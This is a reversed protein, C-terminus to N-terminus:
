SFRYERIAVAIPAAAVAVAGVLGPGADFGARSWGEPVAIASALGGAIGTGRAKLLAELETWRTAFAHPRVEPELACWADFEDTTFVRRALREAHRHTRSQEIDVGVAIAADTIAVAAREGSHSLSFSVGAAHPRGNADLEIRLGAPDGGTREAILSRVMGHAVAYRRRSDGIRSSAAVQEREDLLAFARDLAAPSADLAGLAIDIAAPDSV